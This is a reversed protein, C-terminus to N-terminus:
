ITLPTDIRITFWKSPKPKSQLITNFYIDFFYFPLAHILNIQSAYLFLFHPLICNPFNWTQTTTKTMFVPTDQLMTKKINHQATFFFREKCDDM